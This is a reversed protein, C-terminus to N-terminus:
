TGEKAREKLMADAVAYAFSALAEPDIVEVAQSNPMGCLDGQLAKAAFYDRLTADSAMLEPKSDTATADDLCEVLDYGSYRSSYYKGTETHSRVDDTMVPHTSDENWKTMKVVVGDRRRFRKGIDNPTIKLSM